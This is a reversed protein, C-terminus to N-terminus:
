KEFSMSDLIASISDSSEMDREDDGTNHGAMELLLTGEKYERAIALRSDGVGNEFKEYSLEYAKVDETGPFIGESKDATDAGWSGALEDLVADPDKAKIYRVTVSNNGASADKYVFSVEDASEKVDFRNDDYSVSWGDKSKYETDAGGGIFVLADFDDPDASEELGFTVEKGDEFEGTVTGEECSKITLVRKGEEDEGGLSFTVKGDEQTCAFPLGGIGDTLETRGTKEDYFVYFAEEDQCFYVGKSFYPAGAKAATEQAAGAQEAKSGCATSAFVLAASFMIITFRKIWDIKM